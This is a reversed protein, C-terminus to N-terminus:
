PCRGFDVRGTSNSCLVIGKMGCLLRGPEGALFSRCNIKTGDDCVICFNNPRLSRAAKGPNASDREHRDFEKKFKERDLNIVGNKFYPEGTQQATGPAVSVITVVIATYIAIAATRM